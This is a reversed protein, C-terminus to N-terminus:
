APKEKDVAKLLDDMTLRGPDLATDKTLTCARIVAKRVQRGDMGVCRKAVEDLRPEDALSKLQRWKEALGLLTDRLITRCADEGPPGIFEVLDVRSLFAEDLAKEFNSTAVFLLENHEAALLDLGALAADTARHVDVPNAELSMRHRSAVLTEVEDLLVILPGHAAHERVTQQLLDRVAQQSRGLSASALAHPEIELLHFAKHKSPLAEAVRNALGRALSTKGTGAPGVLLIIGHLPVSVRPVKGRVTFEFVAHALLREKVDPPIIIKDWEDELGKDPLSRYTLVGKHRQHDISPKM